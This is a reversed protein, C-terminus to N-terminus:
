ITGRFNLCLKPSQGGTCDNSKRISVSAEAAGASYWHAASKQVPACAKVTSTVFEDDFEARWFKKEFWTSMATDDSAGSGPSAVGVEDICETPGSSRLASTNAYLMMSGGVLLGIVSRVSVGRSAARSM